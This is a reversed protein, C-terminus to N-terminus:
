IPRRSLTRYVAPCSQIPSASAGLARSSTCLPSVFAMWEGLALLRESQYKIDNGDDEERAAFYTYAGHLLASHKSLETSVAETYCHERRFRNAQARM